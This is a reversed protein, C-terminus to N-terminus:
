GVEQLIRFQFMYDCLEQQAKKYDKADRLTPINKRVAIDKWVAKRDDFWQIKFTPNTM